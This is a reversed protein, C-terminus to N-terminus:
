GGEAPADSTAGPSSDHPADAATGADGGGSSSGGSSPSDSGADPVPANESSCAVAGASGGLLAILLVKRVKTWTM